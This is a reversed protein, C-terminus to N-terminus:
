RTVVVKGLMRGSEVLRHAARLNAANLPHLTETVTSKLAGSALLQSIRELIVHQSVMDTIEFHAKAYMWEWAFRARKAKILNLNLHANSQTTSVISGAPKILTAIAPWYTTLNHLELVADVSTIGHDGLQTVLDQHHNIVLDAGLSKVWAVSEARSATAIVQLGALHALQTAVSGVGGAANIILLRAQHNVEPQDFDFPMLEFLSEWATLSTLPMAAVQADTLNAPAHGVLREDVVQYDSDCGPRDFAGAYFVRDGPQFLTCDNGVATVTGVADWGIIKPAPLAPGKGRRVFIDVPNVAVAAVKVLLDRGTAHPTPTEFDILAKSDTIPLHQQFGIAQM